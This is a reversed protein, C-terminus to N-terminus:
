QSNAQKVDKDTLIKVIRLLDNLNRALRDMSHIFITDGMRVFDLLEDLQKRNTDKGSAKETFTCDLKLGDLQRATNQVFTSERLYGIRQGNM